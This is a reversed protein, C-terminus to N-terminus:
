KANEIEDLCKLLNNRVITYSPAGGFKVGISAAEIIEERTAGASIANNASLVMCPVCKTAVAATVSMIWKYKISLAGEKYYQNAMDMFGNYLDSAEEELRKEDIAKNELIKKLSNMNEGEIKRFM